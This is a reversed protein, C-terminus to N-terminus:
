KLAELEQELEKHLNKFKPDVKNLIKEIYSIDTTSFIKSLEKNPVKSYETM